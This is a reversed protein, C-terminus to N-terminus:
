RMAFDSDTCVRAYLKARDTCAVHLSCRSLSRALTHATGTLLCTCVASTRRTASRTSGVQAGGVRRMEHRAVSRKPASKTAMPSLGAEAEVDAPLCGERMGAPANLRGKAGLPRSRLWVRFALLTNKNPTLRRLGDNPAHVEPSGVLQHLSQM